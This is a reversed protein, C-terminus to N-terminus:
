IFLAIPSTLQDLVNCLEHSYKKEISNLSVCKFLLQPKNMTKGNLTVTDQNNQLSIAHRFYVDEISLCHNNIKTVENNDEDDESSDNDTSLNLLKSRCKLCINNRHLASGDEFYLIEKNEFLPFVKKLLDVLIPDSTHIHGSFLDGIFQATSKSGKEDDCYGNFARCLSYEKTVRCDRNFCKRNEILVLYSNEPIYDSIIYYARNMTNCAGCNDYSIAIKILDISTMYKGAIEITIPDNGFEENIRICSELRMYLHSDKANLYHAIKFLKIATAFDRPKKNIINTGMEMLQEYNFSPGINSKMLKVIADTEDEKKNKKDAVKNNKNQM